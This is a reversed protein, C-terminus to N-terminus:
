RSNRRQKEWTLAKVMEFMWGPKVPFQSHRTLVLLPLVVLVTWMTTNSLEASYQAGSRTEFLLPSNLHTGAIACFCVKSSIKISISVSISTDKLVLQLEMCRCSRLKIECELYNFASRKCGTESCIDPQKPQLHSILCKLIYNIFLAERQEHIIRKKTKRGFKM